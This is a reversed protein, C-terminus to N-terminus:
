DTMRFVLERVSERIESSSVNCVPMDVFKLLHFYDLDGWLSRDDTERSVVIFEIIQLLTRYERWTQLKVVNDSGIIFYFHHDPYQNKLEQVLLITYSKDNERVDREYVFFQPKDKVIERLFAIRQAFSFMSEDKQPPVGAPIFWVKEIPLNALVAEAVQIHGMHVPDFTGGFLAINM